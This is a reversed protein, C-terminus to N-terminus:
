ALMPLPHHFGSSLGEMGGWAAGSFHMSRGLKNPAPFIDFDDSNYFLSFEKNQDEPDKM